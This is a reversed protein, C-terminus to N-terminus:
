QEIGGPDSAAPKKAPAPITSQPTAEIQTHEDPMEYVKPKTETKDIGYKELRNIWNMSTGWVDEAVPKFRSAIAKAKVPMDKLLPYSRSEAVTADNLFEVKVLFWLLVSYIMVFTAGVLLGGLVQNILGLYVARFFGEM